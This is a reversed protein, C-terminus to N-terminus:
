AAQVTNSYMNWLLIRQHHYNLFSSAHETQREKFHCYVLVLQVGIYLPIECKPSCIRAWGKSMGDMLQPLAISPRGHRTSQISTTALRYTWALVVVCWSPCLKFWFVKSITRQFSDSDSYTQSFESSNWGSLTLLEMCISGGITVHGTRFQFRPRVVRVFPPM